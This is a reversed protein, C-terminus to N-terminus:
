GAAALQDALWDRPTRAEARRRLEAAEGRRQELPTALADVLADATGAIDYPHVRRAAGALEDWVGAEPSLAVLGDRRNVLPGEKAVLNLGDRIPNVLLVDYRCLAAVSRPFDDSLDALIPEWTSTRWRGNVSAIVSEVEQRYALYEPLGERSPYVFAGFVVRERWEPYRRLLDDYAHFGRVINKSLEIRDVRALLLRDGLLEDLEDFATACATSAAVGRIDDPDSALPSVFSAPTRGIIEQCSASYADAWRSSHFGCAHHGAMGELLEEAFRDPLVRMLDPGAFPTHSFHVTRLDPRREALMPGVLSLHYDQVLVAAGDPASEAIAAAFSQNVSRYAEWAETFRHDFRPRRALDFLGHYIFWLTANCVVDYAMAFRAPDIDLLRARFGEAEVLPQGAMVRDGDTMAAALWTADTGTVLPALGSVLGGAGRRAVPAGADDLRFSLPGRNSALGIPRGATQDTPAGDATPSTM